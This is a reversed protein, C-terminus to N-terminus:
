YERNEKELSCIPPTFKELGKFNPMVMHAAKAVSIHTPTLTNSEPHFSWPDTQFERYETKGQLVSWPSQTRFSEKEFPPKPVLLM